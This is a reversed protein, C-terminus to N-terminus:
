SYLKLFGPTGTEGINLFVQLKSARLSIVGQLEVAANCAPVKSTRVATMLVVGPVLVISTVQWKAEAECAFPHWTSKRELSPFVHLSLIELSM